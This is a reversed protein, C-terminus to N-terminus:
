AGWDDMLHEFAMEGSRLAGVYGGGPNGWAGALYLGKVPTRNDIRNMFANGLSQEFGYIAGEPNRTFRRNTLPTAAEREEIVASLGPIVHQEARRILIDAWRTKEVEYAGKRGNRYDAEFRRWPGYGCLFLLMVTSTGEASYGEYVNDYVSVSFSGQEVDGNLCSLYDSEAGRGSAIHIGAGEIRKRLPRNLGLWVIFSSISPKYSALTNRYDEPCAREPLMRLTAPASANSVVARAPLFRGGSLGVAKVQHDEVEIRDAETEYLITGGNGTITDALARSLDLSRSRIYYSGNRLYGGTANAYYFASLKSPPLGYYGWLSALVDQLDPNKVHEGLFQALTKNRIAWMRPYRIPFLIKLSIGRNQIYREVEESLSVMENVVSRIGDTEGPFHRSLISVYAEPDQQPVSLSMGPAQLRYIDPLRVLDIKDLVGLNRLTRATSTGNIATGHLSVEFTFRGRDFASAYGGPLHHQEVVTVPIGERALYAGCCLGGLGAGIVVVPRDKGSGMRAAHAKIKSMDLVMSGVTMATVTMFARRSIGNTRM